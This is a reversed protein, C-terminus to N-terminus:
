QPLIRTTLRIRTLSNYLVKWLLFRSELGITLKLTSYAILTAVQRYILDSEFKRVEFWRGLDGLIHIIDKPYEAVMDDLQLILVLGLDVRYLVSSLYDLEVYDPDPNGPPTQNTLKM